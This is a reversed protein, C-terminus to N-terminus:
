CGGLENSSVPLRIRTLDSDLLEFSLFVLASVM